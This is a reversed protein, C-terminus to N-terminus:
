IRVYSYTISKRDLPWQKRNYEDNTFKDFIEKETKTIFDKELEDRYSDTSIRCVFSACQFLQFIIKWSYKNVLYDFFNEVFKMINMENDRTNFTDISCLTMVIELAKQKSIEEYRHFHIVMKEFNRELYSKDDFFITRQCFSSSQFLKIVKYPHCIKVWRIIIKEPDPYKFKMVKSMFASCRLLLIEDAAEFYQTLIYDFLRRFDSDGLTKIYNTNSYIEKLEKCNYRQCDIKVLKMFDEEQLRQAFILSSCLIDFIHTYEHNCKELADYYSKYIINQCIKDNKFLKLTLCFGFTNQCKKFVYYFSPYKNVDDFKSVLKLCFENQCFLIINEINEIMIEEFLVQFDNNQIHICFSRNLFLNINNYKKYINVFIDFFKVDEILGCFFSKAFLYITNEKGILDHLQMFRDEFTTITIHKCFSPVKFLFIPYKPIRNYFEDNELRSTICYYKLLTKDTQLVKDCFENNEFPLNRLAYDQPWENCQFLKNCCFRENKNRLIDKETIFQNVSNVDGNTKLLYNLIRMNKVFQDTFSIQGHSSLHASPHQGYLIITNHLQYIQLLDNIKRENKIVDDIKKWEDRCQNGCIFLIPTFQKLELQFIRNKIKEYWKIKYHPNESLYKSLINLKVDGSNKDPSQLFIDFWDFYQHGFQSIIRQSTVNNYPEDVNSKKPPYLGAFIIRNENKIECCIFEVEKHKGKITEDIEIKRKKSNM